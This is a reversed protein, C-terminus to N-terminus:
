KSLKEAIESLVAASVPSGLQRIRETDAEEDQGDVVGIYAKKEGTMEDEGTVIGLMGTMGSFWYTGTVRM